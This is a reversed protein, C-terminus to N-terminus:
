VYYIRVVCVIYCVKQFKVGDMMGIDEVM